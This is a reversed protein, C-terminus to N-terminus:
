TASWPSRRRSRGTRMRSHPRPSGSSGGNGTRTGTSSRSHESGREARTCLRELVQPANEDGLLTTADCAYVQELSLGLITAMRANVYLTRGTPSVAWISEGATDAIARYRAESARLASEAEVRETVDVLNCVIGGVATDLLNTATAEVQRWGGSARRIRMRVTQSSGGEVATTLAARAPGADDPHVFDWADAGLIDDTSYGLLHDVAPSVYLVCGRVDCVLAVDNARQALALFFEEQQRHRQEAQRLRSLDHWFLAVGTARGREDRLLTLDALAPVLRGDPGTLAAEAQAHDLEGTLVQQLSRTFAGSDGPHHLSDVPQDLLRASPRGVLVTLAQNVAVLRHELDVTAWAVSSQEFRARLHTEQRARALREHRWTTIDLVNGVIAGVNPDDRLDTLTERMWTWGGDARAVRCEVVEQRSVGSILRDWALQFQQREDPHVFGFANAGVLDEPHWGLQELVGPTASTISGDDDATWTIDAAHELLSRWRAENALV